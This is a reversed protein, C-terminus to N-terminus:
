RTTVKTEGSKLLFSEVQHVIQEKESYSIDYKRIYSDLVIHVIEHKITEKPDRDTNMNITLLRKGSHYWGLPGYNSVEVTFLTDSPLHFFDKMRLVFRDDADTWLDRLKKLFNQYKEIQYEEKISGDTWTCVIRERKIIELHERM